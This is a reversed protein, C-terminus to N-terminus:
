SYERLYTIVEESWTKSRPYHINVTVPQHLISGEPVKLQESVDKQLEEVNEQYSM